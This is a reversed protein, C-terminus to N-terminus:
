VLYYIVLDVLLFLTVWIVTSGIPWHKIIDGPYIEKERRIRATIRHVDNNNGILILFHDFWMKFVGMPNKGFWALKSPIIRFFLCAMLEFTRIIVNNGFWRLVVAGRRYFWDADLNIMRKESPYIGSLMLLAFALASFALLQLQAVVHATTYPNYDMEYPLIAYLYGPFIGILLCLAAATGMAFLMNFPAEKPRLGSDHGFFAFYPIKIGAHHFVGASAFLLILWVYTYNEHATAAMVVTKSTFGSFLPFASISAAGVICFLATLPMTRHLGGMDTANRKGTRYLVAGMSMFLLGKYLVHNFVLAATGNIALETGLGIGVVMFGVQNILSYSLVRRMDNEIVAYFIPFGAMGAGIWILLETGPFARALVYVATKTTFASLFVAAGAGAEPYTDPLWSHLFPWACNVGFGIFILWSALGNLGIFTFEPSGGQALHILIGFLLFLGGLLHFFMYRFGAKIAGETGNTWVLFTAAVTMMEWFFFLTVLDGAFIAGLASGAYILGFLMPAKEKFSLSYIFGIWAIIHFIYGWVLSLKDIKVLTLNLDLFTYSWGTGEPIYLLNIFGLIPIAILIVNRLIGRVFFLPVAALYFILFPPLTNTM